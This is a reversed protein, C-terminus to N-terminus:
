IKRDTHWRYRISTRKLSNGKMTLAM